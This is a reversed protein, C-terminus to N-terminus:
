NSLTKPSKKLSAYQRVTTRNIILATTVNIYKKNSYASQQHSLSYPHCVMSLKNLNRGSFIFRVKQSHCKLVIEFIFHISYPSLKKEICQYIEIYLVCDCLTKYVYM